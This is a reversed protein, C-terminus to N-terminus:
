HTEFRHGTVTGGRGCGPQLDDLGALSPGATEYGADADDELDIALVAAACERDNLMGERDARQDRGVNV